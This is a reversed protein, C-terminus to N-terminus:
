ETEVEDTSVRFVDNIRNFINKKGSVWKGGYSSKNIYDKKMKMLIHVNQNFNCMLKSQIKTSKM